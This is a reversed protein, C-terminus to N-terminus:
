RNWLKRPLFHKTILYNLKSKDISRLGIMVVIEDLTRTQYNDLYIKIARQERQEKQNFSCKDFPLKETQKKTCFSYTEKNERNLIRFNPCELCKMKGGKNHRGNINIKQKM